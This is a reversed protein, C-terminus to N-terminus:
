LHTAGACDACEGYLVIEHQQVRFGQPALSGVGRVCGILNFVQRCQQCLFFHHHRRGASEYHPPVGPIDVIRIQGESVFQRLARYVTALGVSPITRRARQCVEGPTLPRQASRFVQELVLRQRTLYAM